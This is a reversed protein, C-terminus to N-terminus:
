KKECELNYLIDGQSSKVDVDMYIGYGNEKSGTTDTIRFSVNSNTASYSKLGSLLQVVSGSFQYKKIPHYTSSVGAVFYICTGIFIM